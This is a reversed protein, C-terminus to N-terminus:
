RIYDFMSNENPKFTSTIENALVEVKMINGTFFLQNSAAYKKFDVEDNSRASIPICPYGFKEDIENFLSVVVSKLSTKGMNYILLCNSEKNHQKFAIQINQQNINTKKRFFM